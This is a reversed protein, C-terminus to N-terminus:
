TDEKSLVSISQEISSHLWRELVRSDLKNSSTALQDFEMFMTLGLPGLAHHHRVKTYDKHTPSITRKM